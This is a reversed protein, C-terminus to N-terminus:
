VYRAIPRQLTTPQVIHLVNGKQKPGIKIVDHKHLFSVLSEVRYMNANQSLRPVLSVCVCVCVYLCYDREWVRPLVLYSHRPVLCVQYVSFSFRLAVFWGYSPVLSCVLGCLIHMAAKGVSIRCFFSFMVLDCDTGNGSGGEETLGM